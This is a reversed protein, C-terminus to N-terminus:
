TNISDFNQLRVKKLKSNPEAEKSIEASLSACSEAVAGLSAEPEAGELGVDAQSLGCGARARPVVAPLNTRLTGIQGRRRAHSKLRPYPQPEGCM